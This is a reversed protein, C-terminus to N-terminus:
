AVLRLYVANVAVGVTASAVVYLFAASWGCAQMLPGRREFRFRFLRLAVYGCWMNGLYLAIGMAVIVLGVGQVALHVPGDWAPPLMSMPVMMAGGMAGSLDGTVDLGVAVLTGALLYTKLHDSLDHITDTLAM